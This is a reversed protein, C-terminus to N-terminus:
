LRAVVVRVIALAILCLLLGGVVLPDYGIFTVVQDVLTPWDMHFLYEVGLGVLALRSPALADPSLTASLDYYRKALHLDKPLSGEGRQYMWGLNFAAQAHRLDSAVWYCAASKNMDRLDSDGSYYLDGLKVHADASGQQAALKYLYISQDRSSPGDIAGFGMSYLWAANAQALEFGLSALIDYLFLAHDTYGHTYLDYARQAAPIFTHTEIVKKYQLVASKCQKPVGLGAHIIQALNFLAVLNGQQAARSFYVQAKSYDRKTGVGHLYMLGLQMLGEANQTEASKTFYKYAERASQQVSWGYLYMRGLMALAYGNGERAADRYLRLATKNDQPVGYGHQHMFGLYAKAAPDGAGSVTGSHSASNRSGVHSGQMRQEEPAEAALKLYYLAREYNRPIGYAGMLNVIGMTVMAEVDGLDAFYKYYQIVDDESSKDQGSGSRAYEQELRVMENSLKIKPGPSVTELKQQVIRDAALQYFNAAATCSSTTGDIGYFHKYASLILGSTPQEVPAPRGSKSNLSASSPLAPQSSTFESLLHSIAATRRESGETAWGDKRLQRQQLISLLSAASAHGLQAAHNLHSLAAPVDIPRLRSTISEISPDQEMNRIFADLWDFPAASSSSDATASSVDYPLINGLAHVALAWYAAPQHGRQAALLLTALAAKTEEETATLAGNQLVGIASEMSERWSLTSVPVSADTTAHVSPSSFLSLLILFAVSFSTVTGERGVMGRSRNKERMM